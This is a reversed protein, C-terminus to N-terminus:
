SGRTYVTHFTIIDFKHSLQFTNKAIFKIAIFGKNSVKQKCFPRFILFLLLTNNVWM